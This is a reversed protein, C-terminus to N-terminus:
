FEDLNISGKDLEVSVVVIRQGQSIGEKKALGESMFVDNPSKSSLDHIYIIRVGEIIRKQDPANADEVELTALYKKKEGPAMGHCHTGFVIDYAEQQKNGFAIKPEEGELIDAQGVLVLWGGYEELLKKRALDYTPMLRREEPSLEMFGDRIEGLIRNVEGIEVEGRPLNLGREWPNDKDPPGPEDSM